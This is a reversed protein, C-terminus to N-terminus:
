KKHESVGVEGEKVSLYTKDGDVTVGYFTGRAACIGNTTRIRFDITSSDVENLLASITGKKLNIRAKRDTNEKGPAVSLLSIQFLSNESVRIAAGPVTVFIAKSEPGSYIWSGPPLEDGVKVPKYELEGPLAARIDGEILSAKAPVSQAHLTGSHFAVLAAIMLLKGVSLTQKLM